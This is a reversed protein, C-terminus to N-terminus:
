KEEDLIDNIKLDRQLSKYKQFEPSSRDGLLFIVKSHRGINFDLGYEVLVNPSYSSPNTQIASNISGINYEINNCLAIRNDDWKM